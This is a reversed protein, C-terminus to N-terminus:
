PPELILLVVLTRVSSLRPSVCAYELLLWTFVSCIDPHHMWLDLFQLLLLQLLPACEGESGGSPALRAWRQPGHIWSLAGPFLKASMPVITCHGSSGGRQVGASMLVSAGVVPAAWETGWREHPCQCGHREPFSSGGSFGSTGSGGPLSLPLLSSVPSRHACKGIGLCSNGCVM